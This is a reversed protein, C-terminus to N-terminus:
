KSNFYNRNNIKENIAARQDKHKIDLEIVKKVAKSTVKNQNILQKKQEKAKALKSSLLIIISVIIIFVIIISIYFQM